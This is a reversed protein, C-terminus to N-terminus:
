LPRIEPIAGMERGPLLGHGWDCHRCLHPPRHGSSIGCAHDEATIHGINDKALASGEDYFMLHDLPDPTGGLEFMGSSESESAYIM